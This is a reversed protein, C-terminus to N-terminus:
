AEKRITVKRIDAYESMSYYSTNVGRQMKNLVYCFARATDMSTICPVGYQLAARRLKYGATSADKGNTPANIVLDIVNDRIMDIVRKLGDERKVDICQAKIGSKQLSKYTDKSAIVSYGMSVLGPIFDLAEKKFDDSLSIFVRKNVPFSTMAGKFAKYLAAAFNIDIGLVEGTSKMEPGMILDSGALKQHSFVPAKVVWYDPEPWLGDTYGLERLTKGLSVNVAINVMPIGTVKSLIPVTRSARPNVEIVFVKGGKLVYQINVLGKVHLARSIKKTYDVIINKEEVSLTTSPYMTFSDGSHIGARDIHEMIGAILTYEGDCVADVEVEKGEIYKDILVPLGPSVSIANEVYSMLEEKHRVIDMSQGGIVYSPRVILPYGLREAIDLAEKVTTAYGGASQPIDINKLFEAFKGRDEAIDIYKQQTGLISVGNRILGKALNIATQGGFQVLVGVPREKDVINMVDELTLPEFYLADATDFDTSVTEPDNNVIVARIGAKKLAWVAHVSCYDFEIGQGIRIPGSGLVLVCPRNEKLVDDEQEYTSYYYPTVSEFEAACTDVTKYVPVIGYEIRKARVDEERIGALEAIMVDSFGLQKGTKLVDRQHWKERLVEEYNVINQIKDLFWIDIKTIDHVQQITWGRRLAEAIYFLRMDNPKRLRYAIEEDSWTSSEEIKLGYAKIELSRIAKQLSAEFTRDIAMVEGTAKMQTGITRDADYFKDFPWRPIKTVVYDLAPEFCATTKKTVPNTIEDLTLGVAIKAAIRAIPYGTVKSALASSRSVRPNVEIVRYEFSHPNLAFQINCGGEIKLARIIKLSSSRLMQYEVDSLTQSPAVVISDGTHVGVPDLNEMNCITICNDNSDRMVEYEIEKWGYLSKEILVEHVMSLKLGVSVIEVLKKEEQAIGGGTGGLTYAPRVILPYGVQQAFELAEEVSRVIKGPAIPENLESMLENFLERDEAKKISDVSTGLLKVDFEDLIGSEKLEVALNLGTQGGLTPLIGDPKEKEIIRGLTDKDLPEIYVKDAMNEDTMITAPNNNVLVVSIGEERLAKCAQTGSYDFEAAQGIVIPGSGIVLVKSIGDKVPM